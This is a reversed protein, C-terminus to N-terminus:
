TFSTDGEREREICIIYMYTYACVKESIHNDPKLEKVAVRTPPGQHLNSDLIRQMLIMEELSSGFGQAKPM